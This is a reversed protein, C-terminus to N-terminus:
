KVQVYGALNSIGAPVNMWNKAESMLAGPCNRYDERSEFLVYGHADFLAGPFKKLVHYWTGDERYLAHLAGVKWEDNRSRATIKAM